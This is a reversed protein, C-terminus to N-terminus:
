KKAAADSADTKGKDPTKDLDAPSVSSSTSSASSNASSNSSNSSTSTSSAAPPALAGSSEPSFVPSNGKGLDDAAGDTTSRLGNTKKGDGGKKHGTRGADGKDNARPEIKGSVEDDYKTQANVAQPTEGKGALHAVVVRRSLPVSQQSHSGLSGYITIYYLGEKNANSMPIKAEFSAGDVKVGGKVPIDSVPRAEAGPGGSMIILPAALAVPPVFVGGAIAAVVGITKLAFIAKSYDHDSHGAYAVYDLPPFYPLADESEDASSANAGGNNAEWAITIRDFVYPSELAGKIDLKEGVAVELPLTEIVGHRSVTEFASLLKSRDASLGISFGLQSADPSMLADRDDQRGLLSKVIRALAAKSIKSNGLEACKISAISEVVADTGGALTYRRDPNEGHLSFHSLVSRATLEQIHSAAVREAIPDSVLPGLGANRREYNILELAFQNLVNAPAADQNEPRAALEDLYSVNTSPDAGYSLDLAGVGLGSGSGFGSPRGLPLLDDHDRAAASNPDLTDPGLLTSKLRDTRDFLSDDPYVKKFVTKELRALRDAIPMAPEAAGMTLGELKGITPYPDSSVPGGVANRPPAVPPMANSNPQNPGGPPTKVPTPHNVPNGSSSPSAAASASATPPTIPDIVPQMPMLKIDSPSSPPSSPVSGRPRNVRTIPHGDKGLLVAPGSADAAGSSASSGGALPPVASSIAQNSAGSAAFVPAASAFSILPEACPALPLWAGVSLLLAMALAVKAARAKKLAPNANQVM